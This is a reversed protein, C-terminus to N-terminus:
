RAHLSPDYLAKAILVAGLETATIILWLAPPLKVVEGLLTNVVGALGIGVALIALLYTPWGARWDPQLDQFIASGLLILGPIFLMLSPLTTRFLVYMIAAVILVAGWTLLEFRVEEEPKRGYLM